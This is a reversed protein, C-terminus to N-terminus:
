VPGCFGPERPGCFAVVPSGCLAGWRHAPCSEVSRAFVRAHRLARAGIADRGGASVCRRGHAGLEPSDSDARASSIAAWSDSPTRHRGLPQGGGSCAAPRRAGALPRRSEHTTPPFPVALSERSFDVALAPARHPMVVAVGAEGKITPFGVPILNRRERSGGLTARASDGLGVFRSPGAM